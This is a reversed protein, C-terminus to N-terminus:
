APLITFSNLARKHLDQALEAWQESRKELKEVEAMDLGLTKLDESYIIMLEQRKASDLWVLREFLTDGSLNYGQERLYRVVHASDSDPRRQFDEDINLVDADRWFEYGALRLPTSHPYSYTYQNNSLYGEFQIWLLRVVHRSPDAIVFHHQEVQAVDSLIFNLSGAYTFSPPVKIQIAPANGSYLINEQVSRKPIM